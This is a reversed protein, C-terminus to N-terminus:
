GVTAATLEWLETTAEAGVNGAARAVVRHDGDLYVVYPFASGGFGAFAAATDDDRVVVPEFGEGDLWSQPPYNGRGADVATSVAYVDLADPKAGDDILQQIVPVEDQCHPCWHALFYIAKPRGDAGITVVNGEFDTAQLTP